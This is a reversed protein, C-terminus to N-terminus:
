FMGISSVAFTFLVIQLLVRVRNTVSWRAFWAPAVKTMPIGGSHIEVENTTLSIGSYRALPYKQSGDTNDSVM